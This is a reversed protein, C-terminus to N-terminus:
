TGHVRWVAVDVPVEHAKAPRVTDSEDWMPLEVHKSMVPDVTAPDIGSPLDPTDGVIFVPEGAFHKAYLSIIQARANPDVPLLISLEDYALWLPTAFLQTPGACCGQQPEWLYVGRTGPSLDSISQALAFSGKWEDHRRVPISQSLFVAVLGVATLAAPIRLLARGRIRVVWAVGIALAILVVVGPLVTPVYRRTWWLLRTSNRASYAYLPFLVLTPLVLAWVSARWRRLAVAALGLGMVAFGPLTFFWSLRRMIQEDYSRIFQENYRFYDPGFLRPRLFGVVLLAAAGACVLLGVVRQVRPRGLGSVAWSLPRRAVFRLVLGAVLCGAVLAAVKPLSPISNALSYNHALDYAQLLAHPTVVALGAAFWTARADWRRTALLAAGVGVSLLVLLLGDARNLWGIGVLLGAVGAAARWRTQLAVVIGLLAGLYLAEALVETTPFRSQWVELMNTALLLGASGAAVLGAAPGALATGARRAVAVMCLVALVGMFPVAFRLGDYGDVDYATALLAPWLHYFQPVIRGTATDRVWVGAFRAGPSTLQVPLKDHLVPDTFAYDGSHAIEVAHSVYGGPDKDAVGYSFGPFTLAAAVAACALAVGVGPGDNAFRVRGRSTIAVVLVVVVLAVATLGIAGPLSHAGLHALALSAWALLAVALVAGGALLDLSTVAPVVPDPALEAVAENDSAGGASPGALTSTM